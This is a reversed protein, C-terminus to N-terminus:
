LPFNIILCEIHKYIFNFLATLVGPVFNYKTLKKTSINLSTNKGTCFPLKGVLM